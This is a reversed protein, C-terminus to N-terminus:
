RVNNCDLSLCPLSYPGKGLRRGGRSGKGRRGGRSQRTSEKPKESSVEDVIERAIAEMDLKRKHRCKERPNYDSDPQLTVWKQTDEM